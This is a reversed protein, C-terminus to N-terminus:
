DNMRVKQMVLTTIPVDLSDAAPIAAFCFILVIVAANVSPEGSGLKKLIHEAESIQACVPCDKGTCDHDAEKVIFLLSCLTILVFAACAIWAAMKQKRTYM